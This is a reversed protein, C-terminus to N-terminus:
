TVPPPCVLHSPVVRVPFPVTAEFPEDGRVDAVERYDGGALQWAILRAEAPQAVPDVM